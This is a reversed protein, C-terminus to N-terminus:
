RDRGDADGALVDGVGLAEGGEKGEGGDGCGGSGRAGM